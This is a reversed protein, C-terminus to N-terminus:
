DAKKAPETKAEAKPLTFYFTAGRGPEATAWIRGGHRTVIRRVIALGIGTGEFEDQRHLRQFVGFLRHAYNMDFGAGNDKVFFEVEDERETVGVHIEPLECRRTYKIANSLLNVWVQKLLARDGPVAPLPVASWTIARSKREPELENWVDKVLINFDVSHKQMDARGMRSFELLDDILRSMNRAATSVIQLYNLGTQSLKDSEQRQMLEVFGAIHRLPARLDHSVTHSFSDLEENLMQLRGTREAVKQELGAYLQVNEMAVSTSNALAQLLTVEEPRPQRCTAWYTGIAGVPDMSRIPVMVLSKVFTPSYADAPIRPDEYINESIAPQRNLMAWGSICIEMPFRKGKWLPAIADEDVYYCFGNDRLVFTAGDAGTLERAARRVIATIGELSRALSLEQVVSVLREMARVYWDSATDVKPTPISDITM